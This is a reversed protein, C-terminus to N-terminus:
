GGVGIQLGQTYIYIYIDGHSLGSIPKAGQFFGQIARTFFHLAQLIRKHDTGELM